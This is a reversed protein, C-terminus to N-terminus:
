CGQDGCNHDRDRKGRFGPRCTLHSRGLARARLLPHQKNQPRTSLLVRDIGEKRMLSAEPPLPPPPGLTYLHTPPCLLSLVGWAGGWQRAKLARVERGPLQPFGPFAREWPRLGVGKEGPGPMRPKGKAIHAWEM